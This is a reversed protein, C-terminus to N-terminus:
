NVTGEIKIRNRVYGPETDVTGRVGANTTFTVRGPNNPDTAGFTLGAASHGLRQLARAVEPRKVTNWNDIKQGDLRPATAVNVPGMGKLFALTESKGTKQDTHTRFQWHSSPYLAIRNLAKSAEERFQASMATNPKRETSLEAVGRAAMTIAPSFVTFMTLSVAAALRMKHEENQQPERLLIWAL